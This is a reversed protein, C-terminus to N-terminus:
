TWEPPTTARRTAFPGQIRRPNRFGEDTAWEVMLRSTRDARSWLIARDTTVDGVAAGWEAKPRAGEAAIPAPATGQGFALRPATLAAGAGTLVHRRPLNSMSM